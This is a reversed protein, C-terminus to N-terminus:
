EVLDFFRLPPFMYGTVSKAEIDPTTYYTSTPQYWISWWALDLLKANVEDVKETQAEGTAEFAADILSALEPYADVSPNPNFWQTSTVQKKINAMPNLDMTLRAIFMPYKPANIQYDPMQMNDWTVNVGIQSLSQEVVPQWVAFIPSMPMSVDFGDPYGAEALLEKAKDINYAYEENLSPDNYDTNAPFIQNTAVGAGSGIARLIGAGNFAYNLAQRVELKGLPELMDGTRDVFQLGVWGSPADAINWGQMKAQGLDNPDGFNANIQGSLMANHRATPNLIPYVTVSEFPFETEAWHGEVKDFHYESGPITAEADLTYPGSGVPSSFDGSSITEPSVMYSRALGLTYLLADDRHSLAIEITDPDIVTITDVSSLESGSMTGSMFHELNAKAAEADFPTGDSFSVGSRLNMTLTKFDDSWTWDTALAPQVAGTEDIVVLPDYVASLYPGNFGVDTEAPDWSRLDLMNGIKLDAADAAGAVLLAALTATSALTARLPLKLMM